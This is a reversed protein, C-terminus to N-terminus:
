RAPIHSIDILKHFSAYKGAELENMSFKIIAIEYPYTLDCSAGIATDVMREVTVIAFTRNYFQEKPMNLIFPSSTNTTNQQVKFKYDKSLYTEKTEKKIPKVDHGHIQSLIENRRALRTKEKSQRKSTQSPKRFWDRDKPTALRSETIRVGDIELNRAFLLAEKADRYSSFEIAAKRLCKGNRFVIRCRTPRYAQFVQRIRQNNLTEDVGEIMVMPPGESMIYVKHFLLELM